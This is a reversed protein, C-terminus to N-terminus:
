YNLASSDHTKKVKKKKQSFDPAESREDVETVEAIRNIATTLIGHKTEFHNSITGKFTYSKGMELDPVSSGYSVKVSFTRNSDDKCTYSTSPFESYVDEYVKTVRVKLYGRQKKEGFYENLAESKEQSVARETEIDKHYSNPLSAIIGAHFRNFPEMYGRKLITKANTLYSNGQSSKNNFHEVISEAEELWRNPQDNYYDSIMQSTENSRPKRLEIQVESVTSTDYKSPVFGNMKTFYNSLALFLHNKVLYKSSGRERAEADFEAITNLNYCLVAQALANDGLFDDICTSGVQKVESTEENMLLYTNKRARSHDCHECNPEKQSLEDINSEIYAKDEDSAIMSSSVLNAWAGGARDHDIKALFRWGSLVPVEGNIEVEVEEFLQFRAMKHQVPSADFSNDDKLRVRTVREEGTLRMTPKPMGLKAARSSLRKMKTEMKSVLHPEVWHLSKM